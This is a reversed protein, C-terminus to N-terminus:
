AASEPKLLGSLEYIRDRWRAAERALDARAGPDSSLAEWRVRWKSMLRQCDVIEAQTEPSDLDPVVWEVYWAVQDVLKRVTGLNRVDDATAGIHGLASALNGLRVPLPDHLFRERHSDLQDEFQKM